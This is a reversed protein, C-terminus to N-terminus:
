AVSQFQILPVLIESHILTFKDVLWSGTVHSAEEVHLLPDFYIGSPIHFIRGSLFDAHSFFELNSAVTLFTINIIIVSKDPKDWTISGTYTLSIVHYSDRSNILHSWGLDSRIQKNFIWTESKQVHSNTSQKYIEM